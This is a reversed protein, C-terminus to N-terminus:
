GGGKPAKYTIHATCVLLPVGTTEDLTIGSVTEWDWGEDSAAELIAGVMGYLAALSSAPDAVRSACVAAYREPRTKFSAGHAEMWPDDPRVVIADPEVQAAPGTIVNLKPAVAVIRSGILEWPPV